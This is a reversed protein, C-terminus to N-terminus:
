RTNFCITFVECKQPLLTFL